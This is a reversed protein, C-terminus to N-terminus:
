GDSSSMVVNRFKITTNTGKRRIVATNERIVITSSVRGDAAPEAAALSGPNRTSTM